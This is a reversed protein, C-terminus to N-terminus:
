KVILCFFHILYNWVKKPHTWKAHQDGNPRNYWGGIIASSSSSQPTVLPILPQPIRVRLFGAGTGIQGGCIGYSRVWAWFLYVEEMRLGHNLSSV